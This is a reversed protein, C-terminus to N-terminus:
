WHRAADKLARQQAQRLHTRLAQHARDPDGAELAELVAAHEDLAAACDNVGREVSQMMRHLHAGLGRLMETLFTNDAAEVLILHFAWDADFYIRIARATPLGDPGPAAFMDEAAQVHAEHASRLAALFDVSTATSREIAALEVVLRAELLDTLQGPSLRAAVRYGKRASRAVLGTHELVVLAERVPTPSVGLERALGDISFVGGPKLRHELLMELLRDYVYDRLAQRSPPDSAREALSM